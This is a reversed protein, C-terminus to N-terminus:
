SDQGTTLLHLAKQLNDIATPVDDYNIASGAWKIYKGAKLMQEANLTAGGSLLNHFDIIKWPDNMM